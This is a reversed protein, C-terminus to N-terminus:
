CLLKQINVSSFVYIPAGALKNIPEVHDSFNSSWDGQMAVKGEQSEQIAGAAIASVVPLFLSASGGGRWGSAEGNGVRM